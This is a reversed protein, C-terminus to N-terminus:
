GLIRRLEDLDTAFSAPPDVFTNTFVLSPDAPPEAYVWQPGAIPSISVRQAEPLSEIGTYDLLLSM